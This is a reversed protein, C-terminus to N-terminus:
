NTMLIKEAFHEFSQRFNSFTQEELTIDWNIDLSLMHGKAYHIFIYDSGNVICKEFSDSLQITITNNDQMDKEVHGCGLGSTNICTFKLTFNKNEYKLNKKKIM